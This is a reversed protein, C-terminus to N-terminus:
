QNERIAAAVSAGIESALHSNIMAQSPQPAEPTRRATKPGADKTAEAGLTILVSDTKVRETFFLPSGGQNFSVPVLKWGATANANAKVIFTVEHSIVSMPFKRDLPAVISDTHNAFLAVEIWEGLKLDSELPGGGMHECAKSLDTNPNYHDLFDRFTVFFDLKEIRSAKSSLQGGASVTVVRSTSVTSGDSFTKIVSSLPDTYTAGPSLSSSEEVNLTLTIKASWSEFWELKRPKGDRGAIQKDDNLVKTVGQILECKVENVVHNVAIKADNINTSFALLNPTRLGCGALSLFISLICIRGAKPVFITGIM